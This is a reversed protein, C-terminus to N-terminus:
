ASPLLHAAVWRGVGRGQDLGAEVAHPFHFGVLVRSRGNEAAARSFRTFTHRVEGPEGCRGAPLTTSCVGFRVRDTGFYSRLAEAAAAGVVAHACAHDPVPPTTVLPQWAPGPATAPNGDTGAEQIATVPRWFLVDHEVAFSAVYGDAVSAHVLALLRVQEWPDLHSRAALDRAIRGWQLPSSRVWFLATETQAATRATPEGVGDGGLRRVQALDRAYRASGLPLPAAVPVQRADRLAFPEVESWHTGFAFLRDPTFRWSTGDLADVVVPHVM